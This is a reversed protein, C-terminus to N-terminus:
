GNGVSDAGAGSRSEGALSALKGNLDFVDNGSVLKYLFVEMQMRKPKVLASRQLEKVRMDELDRGVFRSLRSFDPGDGMLSTYDVVIRDEDRAANYGALAHINYTHWAHLAKIGRFVGLSKKKLYRGYIEGVDRIVFILKHHPIAERWFDYTLCTRPDKFGWDQGAANLRDVEASVKRVLDHSRAGPKLPRVVDLSQARGCSLLEKNIENTFAREYHNGQDYTREDSSSVMEIGSFHLLQSVLTTGSKHMGLVIYATPMRVMGEALIWRRVVGCAEPM